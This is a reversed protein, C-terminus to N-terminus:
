ILSPYSLSFRTSSAPFTAAGVAYRRDYGIGPMCQKWNILDGSMCVGTMPLLVKLLYNNMTGYVPPAIVSQADHRGDPVEEVCSHGM